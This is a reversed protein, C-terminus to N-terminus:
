RIEVVVIEPVCFLRARAWTEGLGHTIFLTCNKNMKFLGQDYKKPIRIPMPCLPGIFPLRIQGGHTHGSIILDCTKSLSDRIIDPNHSLLIIPINKPIDAIAGELDCEEMFADDIGAIAIKKKEIELITHENKLFHIGMPELMAELEKTRDVTQYPRKHIDLYMGADHNGTVAFIGKPAKLNKLPKLDSLNSKENDLFDGVLFIVDPKLGNIREVVHKVFAAKKYPGVHFDSAIAIRLTPANKIAIQQHKIRLLKPEIFSGYFTLLFGISMVAFFTGLGITILADHPKQLLFFLWHSSAASVILLLIILMDWFWAQDYFHQSSRKQM